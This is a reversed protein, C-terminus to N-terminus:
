TRNNASARPSAPERGDTAVRPEFVFNEIVVNKQTDIASGFARVKRGLIAEVEAIFDASTAVQFSVRTDRVRAEEGLEILKLEAPLLVEELVCMLADPGAFNSRAQTPGRGFQEKHLRVMASSVAMLISTPQAQTDEPM